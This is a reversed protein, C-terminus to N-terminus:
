SSGYNHDCVGDLWLLDHFSDSCMFNCIRIIEENEYYGGKLYNTQRSIM